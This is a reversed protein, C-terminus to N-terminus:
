FSKQFQRFSDLLGPNLQMFRKLTHAGSDYKQISDIRQTIKNIQTTDSVKSGPSDTLIAHRPVQIYASSTKINYSAFSSRITYFISGGFVICFIVLGYTLQRPSFSACRQNLYNACKRQIMEFRLRIRDFLAYIVSAKEKIYKRKM